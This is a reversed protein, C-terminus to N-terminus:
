HLVATCNPNSFLPTTDVPYGPGPNIYMIDNRTVNSECDNLAPEAQLKNNGGMFLDTRWKNGNDWDTTCEACGDEMFFYKQLYPVYIMTHPAIERPDTAFTVPDDYTGKGETAIAHHSDPYAIAATGFHGNGDDNDNYGYSTFYTHQLRGGGSGVTATPPKFTATKTPTNGPKPTSSPKATATNTPVSGSQPAWLAPVVPPQWNALSTHAQICKYITGNYTVLDGVNYWTNPQWTPISQAQSLGPLSYFLLGALLVLGMLFLRISRQM